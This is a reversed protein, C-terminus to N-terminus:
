TPDLPVSRTAPVGSGLERMRGEHEVLWRLLEDGPMARAVLFGQGVGCGSDRVLQWDPLTEIGEAVTV